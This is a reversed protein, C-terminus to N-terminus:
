HKKGKKSKTKTAKEQIKLIKKFDPLCAKYSEELAQKREHSQISQLIRPEEIKFDAKYRDMILDITSPVNKGEEDIEYGKITFQKILDDDEKKGIGLFQAAFGQIFNDLLGEKRRAKVDLILTLYDTHSDKGLKLTNKVSQNKGKYEEILESPQAIKIELHKYFRMDLMREYAQINLLPNLELTFSHFDGQNTCFTTIYDIFASLYTGNKNFEYMLVKLKMDYIFVNAYGLGETEKLDLADYEDTVTDHKPPIGTQKTTIMLGTLFDGKEELYKLQITKGFKTLPHILYKSLLLDEFKVNNPSVLVLQTEIKKTTTPM